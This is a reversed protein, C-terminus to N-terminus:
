PRMISRIASAIPTPRTGSPKLRDSVGGALATTAATVPCGSSSTRGSISLRSVSRSGRSGSSAGRRYPMWGCRKSRASSWARASHSRASRSPARHLDLAVDHDVRRRLADVVDDHVWLPKAVPDRDVVVQLVRRGTRELLPRLERLAQPERAAPELHAPRDDLVLRALADHPLPASRNARVGPHDVLEAVGRVALAGVEAVHVLVVQGAPREAADGAAAHRSDSLFLQVCRQLFELANGLLARPAPRARCPTDIYHVLHRAHGARLTSTTCSTGPTGPVSHRHLARPAPRARCPTDM